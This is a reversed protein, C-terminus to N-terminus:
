ITDNVQSILQAKFIMQANVFTLSLFHSVYQTMNEQFLYCMPHLRQFYVVGLTHFDNSSLNSWDSSGFISRTWPQEIFPSSCVEHLSINTKVFKGYPVSVHTVPCQLLSIGKSQRLMEYTQDSPNEFSLAMTLQTFFYYFILVVM